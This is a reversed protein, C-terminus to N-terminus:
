AGSLYRIRMPGFFYCNINKGSTLVSHLVYFYKPLFVKLGFITFKGWSLLLFLQFSFSHQGSWGAWGAALRQRKDDAARCNDSMRGMARAGAFHFIRKASKTM